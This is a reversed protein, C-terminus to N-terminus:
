KRTGKSASLYDDPTTADVSSSSSNEAVDYIKDGDPRLPNSIDSKESV